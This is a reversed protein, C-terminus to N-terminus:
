LKLIQKILLGLQKMAREYYLNQPYLEDFFTVNKNWDSEVMKAFDFIIVKQNKAVRRIISNFLYNGRWPICDFATAKLLASKSEELLGLRKTIQGHKFYLLANSSYQKILKSSLSYAAKPNNAIMLEDLDNLDKELDITSTFDCVKKPSIDLNVPTTTLILLSGRDRSLNVLQILQQEFLLLETELRQFYNQEDVVALINPIEDLAIRSHPEYVLRSLWPQLILATEIRDDQYLSFNSKIIKSDAPDFKLEMFEESAGQYLLIQPWQILSRLEHLTRHIARGSSAISQIKIPKSLNVSVNAALEAQFKAFYAGMRDGIILVPADLKISPAPGKFTYPYPFIQEPNKQYREAVFYGVTVAAITLIVLFYPIVKKM